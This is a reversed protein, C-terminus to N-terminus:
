VTGSDTVTKDDVILKKFINEYNIEIQMKAM